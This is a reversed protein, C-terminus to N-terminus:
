TRGEDESAAALEVASIETPPSAPKGEGPLPPDARRWLADFVRTFASIARRPPTFRSRSPHPEGWGARRGGSERPTPSRGEGELPPHSGAVGAKCLKCLMAHPFDCSSVIGSLKADIWSYSGAM